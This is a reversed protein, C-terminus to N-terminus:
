GTKGALRDAPSPASRPDPRASRALRGAQGAVVMVWVTHAVVEIRNPWGVLVSPGFIGGNASVMVGIAGASVISSAVAIAGALSLSRRASRWAPNRVLTWTVFAAALPMALGLTGGLNHLQGHTTLDGAATTIPDTVFIGAIALGAASVLLLGLGTRGSITRAQSRIAVFLALYGGALALFALVMLWGHQGIAYESVFRWSPDLEPKLVHLVGLLVLFTAAIALSLRAAARSITTVPTTAPDDSM